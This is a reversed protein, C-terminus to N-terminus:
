HPLQGDLNGERIRQLSFISGVKVGLVGMPLSAGNVSGEKTRRVFDGTFHDVKLNGLPTGISLSAWKWFRGKSYGEPDRTFSSDKWIGRTSSGSASVRRKWLGWRDRLTEPLVIGRGTEGVPGRHVSIDTEL